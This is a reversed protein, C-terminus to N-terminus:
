AHVPENAKSAEQAAPGPKRSRHLLSFVAPVFFLTAVTACILGGIVARGLPANQEGGEGLGMAMPIMGIVMALATMLVPRFRTSGAELAAEVPNGHSALQEKAFAVVLISNATGVGMCMIAGMLAPVSITTHTIFLMLVIGSLAAPLATVIILPDLWSQFNVVILLYILVIAALLGALLGIFSTRMTESQGRLTLESGRPLFKRNADVVKNIDSGVGGLDRDQVSGYIDVTRRINYHTVVGLDNSRSIDAVDSLIEPQKQAPSSLPINQLDQISQIDYQPTQTVLSYNVGNQPNLWFTPQTQFSGSLSTLLSRAVDNQTFGSQAAKTRDVDVHFKPLDFVQHVHLDVAGPIRELQPLIRDAFARSEQVNTGVIQLDIAAPQGFNLIQTVIDAPLMYFTTGPFERPLSARLERAYDATPRHKEALTVLVDADGTGIQGSNSYTLNISSYPLGINDLITALENAPITRRIANDVLDCLRATEEIRTGTKARLHLKFQGTDTSPFFDQGLMPVLLFAAGFIAMFTPIFVRRRYVLTTLIAQYQARVRDFSREFARQFLILPNRTKRFHEKARLLYMALTPVLTRSLVYSALMAFVVAEALPVFLYKAVGSLFFMPIFVICICLTSVLAPLAIQAAGEFIAQKLEQGQELHREINEITVTADDVLIGVALALGGLTMINITEGLASLVCISTLISLPISVAIILTSRWSGLFILIMLGTLCAAIIAERIVGNVAGRVFISQDALPRIRLAAPLTAQVKPLLDKIGQVVKLTSASGAKLISVLVGHHGDTRVINTQPAFGNRINAVDRMYIVSNGVVKVPFAGIDSIRPPSSNMDVNYEFQGVKATGSPLILNQAAVAANVDVPSLRTAQLRAPNLDIMVQRSKGGYPYPIVAGPVTVLQTRLFNLALDNLDQEQLGKGSLSLQLIPVSSANYMLILPPVVGQPMQRLISQSVSTVQAVGTTANAYPQLFVKVIATGNLTTSEIHEIDNVTTTLVREFISTMRGEMEAANLGNYNWIIAIVPIDINPFIDTPTRLIVLPSVLLILLALVIFTYPRNLATRVIWM